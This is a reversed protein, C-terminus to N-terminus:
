HTERMTINHLVEDWPHVTGPSIIYDSCWVICENHVWELSTDLHFSNNHDDNDGFNLPIPPGSYVPSKFRVPSDSYCVGYKVYTVHLLIYHLLVAM